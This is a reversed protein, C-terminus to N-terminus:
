PSRYLRIDDFWVEGSGGAVPNDKYGFGISITDINTLDVGQDAFEQLDITWKTWTEIQAANPNDHYVVATPGNANAVAVYMPEPANYRNGYFWLSLVGVGEETWDRPYSLKLTAESKGVQNGYFYWMSQAGSHVISKQEAYPPFEDFINVLSGNTPIDWGDIWAELIRNSEPDPPDIDNYSEFDDVVLFNATTFSWVPGIWPSDPNTNNVEDIRWYYTTDWELM